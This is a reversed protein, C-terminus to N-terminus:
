LTVVEADYFADCLDCILRAADPKRKLAEGGEAILRGNKAKLRWRWGDKSKYVHFRPFKTSM